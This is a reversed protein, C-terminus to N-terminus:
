PKRQYIIKGKPQEQNPKWQYDKKLSEIKDAGTKLMGAAKDYLYGKPSLIKTEEVTKRAAARTAEETARNVDSATTAQEAQAKMLKKQENFMMGELATSVFKSDATDAKDVDATAGGGVPAGAGGTASLIPNLGAAKLDKVERQHASNSMQEQWQRNIKADEVSWDHAEASNRRSLHDGLVTQALGAGVNAVIDWM